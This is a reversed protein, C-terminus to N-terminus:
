FYFLTSLQLRLHHLYKKTGSIELQQVAYFEQQKEALETRKYISTESISIFCLLISSHWFYASCYEVATFTLLSTGQMLNWAWTNLPHKWLARKFGEHTMWDTNFLSVSFIWQWKSNIRSPFRLWTVVGTRVKRDCVHVAQGCGWTCWSFICSQWRGRRSWKGRGDRVGELIAPVGVM